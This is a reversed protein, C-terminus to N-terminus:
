VSTAGNTACCESLEVLSHLFKCYRQGGTIRHTSRRCGDGHTAATCAHSVHPMSLDKVIELVPAGAFPSRISYGARRALCKMATNTRLVDGFLYRAGLIRARCEVDRLLLTGLGRRQWRDAVSLAIECRESNPVMVQIAEAIMIGERNGGAFAILALEGPRDMHLVRELETPALENVAGLFRNRRSEAALGQLYTQLRSADQPRRTRVVVPEGGPLHFAHPCRALEVAKRDRM